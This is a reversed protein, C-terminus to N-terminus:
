SRLTFFAWSAWSAMRGAPSDNRVGSSADRDSDPSSNRSYSMIQFRVTAEWIVSAVPVLAWTRSTPADAPASPAGARSASNEALPLTM